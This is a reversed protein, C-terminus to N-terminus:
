AFPIDGHVIFKTNSIEEGASLTSQGAGEGVLNEAEEIGYEQNEHKNYRQIGDDKHEASGDTVRM